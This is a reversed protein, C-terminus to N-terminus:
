MNLWSVIMSCGFTQRKLGWHVPRRKALQFGTWWCSRCSSQYTRVWSSFIPWTPDGDWSPYIYIYAHISTHIYARMCTHIYTHMESVCVCIYIYICPSIHMHSVLLWPMATVLLYLVTPTAGYAGGDKWSGAMTLMGYSYTRLNTM